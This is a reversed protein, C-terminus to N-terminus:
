NRLDIYKEAQDGAPRKEGNAGQLLGAEEPLKDSKVEVVIEEKLADPRTIDQKGTRGGPIKGKKHLFYLVAGLVAILLICVIVAVIIVGKSEQTKQETTNGAPPTAKGTTNGAPPTAKRQQLKIHHQTAGLKNSATCNVGSKLLESTVQLTLNSSTRHHDTHNHVTGNASWTITPLPLGAARCVLTVVEDHQVRVLSDKPSIQPKAHVAVYVQKSRSLGPVGGVTVECVYNGSSELTVNSVKLQKGQGLQKGKKEKRWRFELPKSGRADCTLAVSDGPQLQIPEEPTIKLGELYNVSLEVTEELAAMSDFDFIRCVYQGSDEKRVKPLIVVGNRAELEREEEGEKVKGLTYEPPPNGDGKCLLKVEDGERVQPQPSLVELTLTETPYYLTLTVKESAAIHDAGRLCYSVQCHYHAQRDERSVRAYLTSSVTYLGSSEKTRTSLIDIQSEQPQLQTDDKYWTINPAPFGNKSVCAAIKPIEKSTVSLGADNVEIEPPEPTKYVLLQTRKEDVGLSGAGVQCVFSRADQLTVRSITLAFDDEMAVRGKYETDALVIQGGAMYAIKMRRNRDICFWNIYAYDSEGPLSFNCNIRATEGLEVEVVEPVSVEVKDVAAAGCLLVLCGLALRAAAGSRAM